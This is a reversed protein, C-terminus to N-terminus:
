VTRISCFVKQFRYEVGIVTIMLGFLGNVLQFRPEVIFM